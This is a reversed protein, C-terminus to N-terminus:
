RISCELGRGRHLRDNKLKCMQLCAIFVKETDDYWGADSLFSGTFYFGENCHHSQNLHSKGLLFGLQIVKERIASPACHNVCCHQSYADSLILSVKVGHDM